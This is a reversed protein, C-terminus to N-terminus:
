FDSYEWDVEYKILRNNTTKELIYVKFYLHKRSTPM